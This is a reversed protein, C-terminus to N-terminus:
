LLGTLSWQGLLWPLLLEDSAFIRIAQFSLIIFVFLSRLTFIMQWLFRKNIQYAAGSFYYPWDLFVHLNIYKYFCVILM